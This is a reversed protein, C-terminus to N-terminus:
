LSIVERRTTTRSWGKPSCSRKRFGADVVPVRTNGLEPVKVHRLDSVDSKRHELGLALKKSIM